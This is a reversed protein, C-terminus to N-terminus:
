DQEEALGGLLLVSLKDEHISSNAGTSYLHYVCTIKRNMTMAIYRASIDYQVTINHRKIKIPPKERLEKKHLRADNDM